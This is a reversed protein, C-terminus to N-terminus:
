ARERLRLVRIYRFRKGMRRLGISAVAGAAAALATAAVLGPVTPEHGLLLWSAGSAAVGLLGTSVTLGITAAFRASGRRLTRANSETYAAAFLTLLVLVAATVTTTGRQATHVGFRYAAVESGNRSLTLEATLDGALVYGNVPPPLKGAGGAGLPTASGGVSAGPLRVSLRAADADVGSIEIPVPASLDVEVARAVAPDMGAIRVTGQVPLNREPAGGLGLVATGAVLAALVGASILPVRAPKLNVVRQVPVLENRDVDVLRVGGGAIPELPRVRVMSVASWGVRAPQAPPPSVRQAGSTGGSSGSGDRRVTPVRQEPDDKRRTTPGQQE